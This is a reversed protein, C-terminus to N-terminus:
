GPLAKRQRAARIRAYNANYEELGVLFKMRERETSVGAHLRIELARLGHYLSWLIDDDTAQPARITFAAGAWQALLQQRYEASFGAWVKRRYSEEAQPEWFNPPREGSLVEAIGPEPRARVIRTEGQVPRAAVSERSPRVIASQIPIVDIVEARIPERHLPRPKVPVIAVSRSRSTKALKGPCRYEALHRRRDSPRSFTAGCQECVVRAGSYAM